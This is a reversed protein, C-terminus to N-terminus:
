LSEEEVIVYGRASNPHYEGFFEYRGIPLPGIFISAERQAFIVRERNLDFSDFEEATEDKNEIIIKVKTNPPIRLKSPSFVHNELVLRYIPTEALAPRAFM